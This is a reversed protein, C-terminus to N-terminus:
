LINSSCKKLHYDNEQVAVHIFNPYRVLDLYVVWFQAMKGLAGNRANERFKEYASMISATDNIIDADPNASAASLQSPILYSSFLLREM